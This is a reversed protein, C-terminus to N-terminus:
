KPFVDISPSNYSVNGLNMENGIVQMGDNNVNEKTVRNESKRNSIIRKPLYM